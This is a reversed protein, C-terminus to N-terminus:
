SGLERPACVPSVFRLFSLVSTWPLVAAPNSLADVRTGSAQELTLHGAM